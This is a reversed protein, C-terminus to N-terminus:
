SPSNKYRLSNTQATLAMENNIRPDIVIQKVM